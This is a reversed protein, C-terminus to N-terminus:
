TILTFFIKLGDLIPHIKSEKNARYEIPVQSIKFDRKIAKKFIETEIEFGNSQLNLEFFKEKKIAFFGTLFDLKKKHLLYGLLSFIKNGLLRVISIKTKSDKLFRSGYVIDNEKRVMSALKSIKNPSYSNDGDIFVLIEGRAEKAGKKMAFGKGRKGEFILRVNNFNKVIESTKDRSGNDIVIIEKNRLNIKELKELLFGINKEENHCPIIISIM